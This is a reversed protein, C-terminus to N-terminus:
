GYAFDSIKKSMGEEMDAIERIKESIDPLIGDNDAIIAKCTLKEVTEWLNSIECFAQYLSELIDYDFFNQLYKIFISFQCRSGLIVLIKSYIPINWINTIGNIEETLNMKEFCDAFLRMKDFATEGLEKLVSSMIIKIDSFSNNVQLFKITYISKLGKYFEERSVVSNRNIPNTDVCYVNKSDLGVITCYHEGHWSHYQKTWPCCYIDILSMVPVNKNIEEGIIKFVDETKNYTKFGIGCYKRYRKVTEQLTETYVSYGLLKIKEDDFMRFKWSGIFAKQYDVSKWKLISCMSNEVCNCGKIAFPEVSLMM